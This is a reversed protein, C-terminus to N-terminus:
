AKPAPIGNLMGEVSLDEDVAPWHVYHGDGLIEYQNRQSPTAQSLRWSWEIPVSISRGDALYATIDSDTVKISEIQPETTIAATSM